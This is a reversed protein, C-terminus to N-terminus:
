VAGVSISTDVVGVAEDTTTGAEAEDGPDCCDDDVTDGLVAAVSASYLGLVLLPCSINDCTHLPARLALLVNNANLSSLQLHILLTGKRDSQNWDTSPFIRVTRARVPVLRIPLPSQQYM